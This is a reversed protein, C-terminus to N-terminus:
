SIWYSIGLLPHILNSVLRPVLIAISSIELVGSIASKSFANWEVEPKVRVLSDFLSDFIIKIFLSMM